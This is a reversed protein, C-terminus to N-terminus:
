LKLIEGWKVLLRRIESRNEPTKRSLSMVKLSPLDIMPVLEGAELLNAMVELITLGTKYSKAPNSDVSDALGRGTQVQM